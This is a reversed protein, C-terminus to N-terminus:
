PPGTSGVIQPARCGITSARARGARHYRPKPPNAKRRPHGAGANILFPVLLTKHDHLGRSAFAIWLAKTSKVSRSPHLQPRRRRDESTEPSSQGFHSCM